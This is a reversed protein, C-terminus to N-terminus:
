GGGARIGAGEPDDDEIEESCGAQNTAAKDKGSGLGRHMLDGRQEDNETTQHRHADRNDGAVQVTDGELECPDRLAPLSLRPSPAPTTPHPGQDVGAGVPCLM